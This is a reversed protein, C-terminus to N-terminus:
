LGARVGDVLILAGLLMVIGNGVLVTPRRLRHGARRGITAGFLALASQWSLSAVFAASAFVLRDSIGALFPLGVALAAFYVVTAPNLLTLGLLTFYTRSHAGHMPRAAVDGETRRLVLIGRGGIGILALGGIVRLPTEIPTIASSVGLGALVALTAYIGDATAAGAGAALGHRLGGTMGTHIILVAIAGVPIAIAYGAVAGALLAEVM